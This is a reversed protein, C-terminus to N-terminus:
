FKMTKISISIEISRLSSYVYVQYIYKKSVYAWIYINFIIEGKDNVSLLYVHNPKPQIM